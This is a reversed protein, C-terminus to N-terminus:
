QGELATAAAEEVHTLLSPLPQSEALTDAADTLSGSRTVFTADAEGLFSGELDKAHEVLRRTSEELYGQESQTVAREFANAYSASRGARLQVVLVDPVTNNAFTNQKGTPMSMAFGEVFAKAAKAAVKSSGLSEELQRLDVTAFRYLTSSNFDVYGIMGAGADDGVNKFDDVATFYDSETDVAHTSIAHAVQVSADVNLDTADAVMRGFLAVEVGHAGNAAAKAEKKAIKDSDSAAVDALRELQHMSLFLLYQSTAAAETGDKKAKPVEIKLDLARLTEIARKECHEADWDGRRERILPTLKEVARLTRIATEEAPILKEFANRVAKKWSQSSVRARTTGGFTATKPRGADDRNVNSPPLSQLVHIDLFHKTM